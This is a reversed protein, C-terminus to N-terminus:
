GRSTWTLLKLVTTTRPLKGTGDAHIGISQAAKFLSEAISNYGNGALVEPVGQLPLVPIAPLKLISLSSLPAIAQAAAASFLLSAVIYRM